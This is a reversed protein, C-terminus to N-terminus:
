RYVPDSETPANGDKRYRILGSEDIRFGPLGSRSDNPVAAVHWSKKSVEFEAVRYGTLKSDLLEGDFFKGEDLEELTGFKGNKTKYIAQASYLRRLGSILNETKKPSFNMGMSNRVTVSSIALYAIAGSVAAALLFEVFTLAAIGFLRPFTAPETSSSALWLAAATGGVGGLFGLLVSVFLSDFLIHIFAGSTGALLMGAFVVGIRRLKGIRYFSGLWWVPFTFGVAVGIVASISIYVTETSIVM